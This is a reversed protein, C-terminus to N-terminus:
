LKAGERTWIHWTSNKRRNTTQAGNWLTELITKEIQILPQTTCNSSSSMSDQKQLNQKQYSFVKNPIPVHM